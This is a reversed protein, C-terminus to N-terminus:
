ARLFREVGIGGFVGLAVAATDIHTLEGGPDILAVGLLALLGGAIAALALEVAV